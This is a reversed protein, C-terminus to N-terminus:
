SKGYDTFTSPVTSAFVRYDDLVNNMVPFRNELQSLIIDIIPYFITVRFCQEPDNLREDQSNWM